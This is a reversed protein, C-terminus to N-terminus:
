LTFQSHTVNPYFYCENNPKRRNQTFLFAREELSLGTWVCWFTTRNIGSKFFITSNGVLTTKWGINTELWKRGLINSFNPSFNNSFQECQNSIRCNWKLDPIFGVSNIHTCMCLPKRIPLHNWYYRTIVSEVLLSSSRMM